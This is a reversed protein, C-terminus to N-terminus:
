KQCQKYAGKSNMLYIAIKKLFVLFEAAVVAIM